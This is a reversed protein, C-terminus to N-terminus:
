KGEREVGPYFGKGRKYEFDPRGLEIYHMKNEEDYEIKFYCTKDLFGKYGFKPLVHKLQVGFGGDSCTSLDLTGEVKKSHLRFGLRQRRMQLGGAKKTRPSYLVIFKWLEGELDLFGPGGMLGSFSDKFIRFSGSAKYIAVVGLPRRKPILESPLWQEWEESKM